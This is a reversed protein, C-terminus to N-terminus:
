GGAVATDTLGSRFFHDVALENLEVLAAREEEVIDYLSEITAEDAILNSYLQITGYLATLYHQARQAVSILGAELVDAALREDQELRGEKLIDRMTQCPRGEHTSDLRRLVLELQDRNTSARILRQTLYARVDAHTALKALGPLVQEMQYECSYLQQLQNVYWDRVDREVM